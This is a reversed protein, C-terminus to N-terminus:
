NEKMIKEAEKLFALDRQRVFYGSYSEPKDSEIKFIAEDLSTWVLRFGRRLEKKTFSPEGESLAEGLYCYSTQKLNQKSRFEIIKGIERTVEIESGVEELIERVLAQLRDEGEDIGGGPLKHYNHQSVFLLPILDDKNFLVARSAERIRLASKNDSFEKDKIEKLLEM